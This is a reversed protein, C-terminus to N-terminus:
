NFKGGTLILVILDCALKMLARAGNSSALTKYKELLRYITECLGEKALLLKIDDNEAQYHLLELCMEALDPNKSVALIQALQKNLNIDFNIDAVNETLISLPPLTNLLLDENNEIEKENICCNTVIKQIKDMINYNISRKALNEEGLLYNSILGGRVKIFQLENTTTKTSSSATAEMEKEKINCKVDLDLLRILYEDGNLNVILNRADDNSFCINGLARCVQILLEIDYDNIISYNELNKKIIDILLKIVNKNTFKKRQAETKTVEAIHRTIEKQIEISISKIATTSTENNIREEQQQLLKIFLDVLDYNNLIKIDSDTIKKLLKLTEETSINTEEITLYNLQKIIDEIEGSIFVFIFHSIPALIM